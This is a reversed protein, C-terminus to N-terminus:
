PSSQERMATRNESNGVPGSLPGAQNAHQIQIAAQALSANREARQPALVELVGQELFTKPLPDFVLNNDVVGRVNMLKHRSADAFGLSCESACQCFLQLAPLCDKADEILTTHAHHVRHNFIGQHIRGADIFFPKTLRGEKGSHPFNGPFFGLLNAVPQVRASNAEFGPCTFLRVKCIRLNEILAPHINSRESNGIFEATVGDANLVLM